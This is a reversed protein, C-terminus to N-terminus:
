VFGTTCGCSYSGQTNLCQTNAATCVNGGVCENIDACTAGSHYLGTPCDCKYSGPLNACTSASPCNASGDSCENRDVCSSVGGTTQQIYGTPCECLYSGDTNKCVSGAKGSCISASSCENIDSCWTGDGTYGTKCTCTHGGITNQCNANNDCHHTGSTCENVEQCSRGSKLNTNADRYGAWCTCKYGGLLNTCHAKAHCDNGMSNLCENYDGVLVGFQSTSFGANTLSTTLLQFIRHLTNIRCTDNCTAPMTGIGVLPNQGSVQSLIASTTMTMPDSQLFAEAKILQQSSLFAMLCVTFFAM